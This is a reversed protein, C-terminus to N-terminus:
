SKEKVIAGFREVAFRLGRQADLVVHNSEAKEASTQAIGEEITGKTRVYWVDVQHTVNSARHVRDEVQEQDDPVWTEDMLVIDDAADLTISV